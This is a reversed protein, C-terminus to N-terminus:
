VPKYRAGDGIPINSFDLNLTKPFLFVTIKSRTAPEPWEELPKRLVHKPYYHTQVLEHYRDNNYDGREEM